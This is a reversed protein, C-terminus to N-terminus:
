GTWSLEIDTCIFSEQPKDELPHSRHFSWEDRQQSDTPSFRNSSTFDHVPRAHSTTAYVYPIELAVSTHCPHQLVQKVQKCTNTMWNECISSPIETPTIFHIYPKVDSKSPHESQASLTARLMSTTSYQRYYDYNSNSFHLQLSPWNAPARTNTLM